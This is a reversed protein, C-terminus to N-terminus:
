SSRNNHLNLYKALNPGAERVKAGDGGRLGSFSLKGPRARAILADAFDKYSRANGDGSQFFGRKIEPDFMLNM